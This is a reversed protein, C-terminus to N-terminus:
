SALEEESLQSRAIDQYVENSALLQSHTGQGVIRGKDLVLILDADRVTGIRQAVLLVTAGAAATKLSRRIDRETKYDLASFSDDFLLIEGGRALARAMSIRQKQGGSYNKGNQAVVSAYGDEKGAVFEAVAASQAAQVVKQATMQQGNEGLAINSAVSGSFLTYKQPVYALRNRLAATDWQRVDVEDVLVSGQRVDYFRLILNLLSSKGSGTSGILAVTQGPKVTFSIGHLADGEAGPYRFFVDRFELSGAASGETVSGNALSPVTTLVERIRRWAVLARPGMIFVMTMMMFSTVVLLAYTSFVVMQGFLTVRQMPDATDNILVAGLVYIALSLGTMIATLMPMIFAMTSSVFLTTKRLDQNVAEFREEHFGQTLYARIVRLGTLHERTVRNLGDTIKQMRMMRPIALAMACGLVLLTALVAIGTPVTWVLSQSAIKSSAWVAMIPAKISVQLGMVVFMQVQTVDNTSRTILSDTGIKELEAASFDFSRNYVGARMRRAITTGCIATCFGTVIAAVMSAAAAGLMMWGEAAVDSLQSGPQSITVTIQEMYEPVRLDLYVQAIIMVVALLTLLWERRHVFQFFTM